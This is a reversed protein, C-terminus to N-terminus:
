HCEERLLGALRNLQNQVAKLEARCSEEAEPQGFCRCMEDLIARRRRKYYHLELRLLASAFAKDITEDDQSPQAARLAWLAGATEPSQQALLRDVNPYQGVSVENYLASVFAAIGEHTLYKYANEEHFRKIVRPFHMIFELVKRQEIPIEYPANKKPNEDEFEPSEIGTFPPPYDDPLMEAPLEPNELPNWDSSIPEMQPKSRPSPQQELRKSKRSELKSERAEQRERQVKERALSEEIASQVLSEDIGLKTSLRKMYLARVLPDSLRSLPLALSHLVAARGPLDSPHQSLQREIELDLLPVAQNLLTNFAEAGFNRIFSDPDEKPPLRVARPEFGSELLPILSAFSAKQGAADGDMVCIIQDSVRKCLRTQHPTLATGMAAVSGEFGAQWLMIVDINGECLILRGAARAAKQATHIGYLNDGKIFVPTEPSNVYKAAKANADMIRGSFGVVHGRMDMIPFMLRQRFRQYGGQVDNQTPDKDSFTLIGLTKLDEISIHQQEVMRAFDAKDGSCYGLKFAEAAKPTIRRSILYSRAREGKPSLLTQYFYDALADGVSLLREKESKQEARWARLEPSEQQKKPLEVGCRAALRELAERFDIGEQEMLFTFVDGHKQCGFCHFSRREPSVTFSPTKEAHFPCLGKFITGAKRLEVYESILAVIDTRDLVENKADESTM